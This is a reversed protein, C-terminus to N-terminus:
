DIDDIAFQVTDSEKVRARIHLLKGWTFMVLLKVLAARSRGYRVMRTVINRPAFHLSLFQTSSEFTQESDCIMWKEVRETSIKQLSQHDLIVSLM